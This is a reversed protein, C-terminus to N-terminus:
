TRFRHIGRELDRQGPLPRATLAGTGPEDATLAAVVPDTKAADRHPANRAVALPEAGQQGPHIVQGVGEVDGLIGEGLPQGLLIHRQGVLQLLDDEQM